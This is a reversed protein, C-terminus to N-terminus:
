WPSYGSQADNLYVGNLYVRATNNDYGRSRFRMVGFNYNTVSEYVDQSASLTVPLDQGVDSTETDFDDIAFDLGTAVDPALTVLHIETVVNAAVNVQLQVPLFDAAEISLTWQGAPVDPLEFEGNSTYVAVPLPSHVTVKAGDVPQRDTRAIVKGKLHGAEYQAVAPVQALGIFLTLTVLKKIHSILKM